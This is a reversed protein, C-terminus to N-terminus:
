PPGREELVEDEALLDRVEIVLPNGLADDVRPARRRVTVELAVLGELLVRPGRQERFGALPRRYEDPKRGDEALAARGVGGAVDAAERHLEVRVLPVPVEDAVVDGDEEDLVRHLEGVEDMRGLGLGM